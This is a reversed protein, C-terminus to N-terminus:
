AGGGTGDLAREIATVITREVEDLGGEVTCGAASPHGGGGLGAAIRGVHVAPTNSRLGVRVSHGGPQERLIAAVEVGHVTRPYQVFRETDEMVAGNEALMEQTVRMTAIRGGRWLCLTGLAQGLLLQRRAPWAGFLHRWLAFPEAGREVLSAAVRLARATTNAFSFGGTDTVISAYLCVAIERTVEVGWAEFLGYLMEGVSSAGADVWNITGFRENSEHHDINVLVPFDSRAFAPAEGVRSLSATDLAVAVDFSVGAPYEPAIREAGPLFRYSEPLPSPSWLWVQKGRSGLAEALALESGVCDFDPDVHTFLVFREGADFATLVEQRLAAGTDPQQRSVEKM